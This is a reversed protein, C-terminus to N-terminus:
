CAQCCRATPWDTSSSCPARELGTPKGSKDYGRQSIAVVKFYKSLAPMQDRWTFWYDPFGHIMILLPGDGMTVYQIPVGGSDAVGETSKALLERFTLRDEAASASGALLM